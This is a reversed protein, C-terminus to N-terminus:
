KMLREIDEIEEDEYMGVAEIDDILRHWMMTFADKWTSQPPM